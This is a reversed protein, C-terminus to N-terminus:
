KNHDGNSSNNESYRKKDSSNHRLFLFSSLGVVYGFLGMALVDWETFIM